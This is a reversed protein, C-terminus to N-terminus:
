AAGVLAGAQVAPVWRTRSGPARNPYLPWDVAFGGAQAKRPTLGLGYSGQAAWRDHTCENSCTDAGQRGRKFRFGGCWACRREM